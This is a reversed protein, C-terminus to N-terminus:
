YTGNNFKLLQKSGQPGADMKIEGGKLIELKLYFSGM